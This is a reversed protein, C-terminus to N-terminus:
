QPIVSIPLPSPSLYSPSFTICRLSGTYPSINMATITKYPAVLIDITPDLRAANIASNM